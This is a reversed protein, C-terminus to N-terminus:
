LNFNLLFLCFYGFYGFVFFFVGCFRMLSEIWVLCRFMLIDDVFKLIVNVDVYIGNNYMLIEGM